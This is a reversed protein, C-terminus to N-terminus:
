QRSGIKSSLEGIQIVQELQLDMIYHSFTWKINPYYKNSKVVKIETRTIKTMKLKIDNTRLWKMFPSVNDM